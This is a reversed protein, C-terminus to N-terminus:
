DSSPLAKASKIPLLDTGISLSGPGAKTCLIEIGVEDSAYRKGIQTGEDFGPEVKLSDDPSQGMALMPHGGCRLDVDGEPARVVIVETPDVASRLRTGAKLEM